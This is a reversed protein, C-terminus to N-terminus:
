SIWYGRFFLAEAVGLLILCSSYFMIKVALSQKEMILGLLIFGPFLVLVYRPLSSFSGSFTPIMYGGLFYIFYSLRLRLYAVIVLALFLVSSSFELITSFYVPFYTSLHPFIKFIYRYFVQPLIIFHNSRQDGFINVTHLFILADGTSLHLYFMYLLLGAPALLLATLASPWNIKKKEKILTFYELLLASLLVIGIIRTASAFAAIIGASLYKKKRLFYFFLVVLFLFLSETYVAGFYFSTPFVALTFLIFFSTKKKYDMLLLHWLVVLSGLFFLNSIILASLQYVSITQELLKPLFRLVLPYVPFFFQQFSTYGYRAISLYHEGDFNAWGWFLPSNLYAGRGGGLFNNQLPLLKLSFIAPFTIIVRWLIFVFFPSKNNDILKKM